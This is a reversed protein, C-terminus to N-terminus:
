ALATAQIEVRVAASALRAEVCARVPECGKVLWGDYVTNMADFDAIDRLWIMVKVVRDRSTGAQELLADIQALVDATQEAVGVDTRGPIVGKLFVLGGATIATRMRSNGPSRTISM